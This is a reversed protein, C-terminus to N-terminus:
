FSVGVMGRFAPGRAAFTGLDVAATRQPAGGVDEDPTFQLDMSSTWGYGGEAAAWIRLEGKAGSLDLLEGAVGAFGDVAILWDAAYLETGTAGEDLRAAARLPGASPRAYLYLQPLLHFRLEPGLTFRHLAIRTAEGRATSEHGSGDYFLMGAVSLNGQTYVTRGVALSGQGMFDKEAFPDYGENGVFAGRMGAFLQWGPYASKKRPPSEVQDAQPEPTASPYSTVAFGGAFPATQPTAAPPTTSAPATAPTPSAAEAGVAADGEGGENAAGAPETVTPAATPAVPAAPKAAPKEAAPKEAAPTAPAAKDAPPKAAPQALVATSALLVAFGILPARMM